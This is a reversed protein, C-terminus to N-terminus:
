QENAAANRPRSAAAVAGDVLLETLTDFFRHQPLGAGAPEDAALVSSLVALIIRALDRCAPQNGQDLAGAEVLMQSLTEVRTEQLAQWADPAVGEFAIRLERDGRILRLTLSSETTIDLMIRVALKLRQKPPLDVKVFVPWLREIQHKRETIVAFVLLEEKSRFHCYISGKSVSASEAIERMSTRRFGHMGFLETAAKAIQRKLHCEGSEPETGGVFRDLAEELRKYDREDMPQVKPETANFPM